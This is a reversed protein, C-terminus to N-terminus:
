TWYTLSMIFKNRRPNCMSKTTTMALLSISNKFAEDDSDEPEFLPGDIALIHFREWMKEPIM